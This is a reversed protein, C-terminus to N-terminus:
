PVFITVQFAVDYGKQNNAANPNLNEEDMRENQSLPRYRTNTM